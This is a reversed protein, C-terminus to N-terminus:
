FAAESKFMLNFTSGKNVSSNVSIKGKNKEVLEKCLVLGLGTGEEKDTGPTSSSKDIKFMNAVQVESMGVGNDMVSIIIEEGTKVAEVFISGGHRTFKIANSILNRLVTQLMKKDVFLRVNDDVSFDLSIEKNLASIKYLSDLSSFMELLNVVEPDYEAHGLKLRTWNLLNELLGFLNKSSVKISSIAEIIEEHTLEKYEEEVWESYAMIASLPNKIDHAIISFFKDKSRNAEELEKNVRELESVSQKLLEEVKKREEIEYLAKNRMEKYNDIQKKEDTIDIISFVIFQENSTPATMRIATAHQTKFAGTKDQIPIIYKNLQASFFEPPGGAFLNNMRIKFIKNDLHPFLSFINKHCVDAYSLLSQENLSKNWFVINYQCDIVFVGIRVSNYISFIKACTM